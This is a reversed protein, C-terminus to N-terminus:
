ENEIILPGQMKGKSDSSIKETALTDKSNMNANIPDEEASCKVCYVRGQKEKMLPCGCVSCHDALLTEGKLLGAGILDSYRNMDTNREISRATDQPMSRPAEPAPLNTSRAMAPRTLASADTPHYNPMTPPPVVTSAAPASKVVDMEQDQSQFDRRCSVCITETKLPNQMLPVNCSDCSANLMTWGALLLDSLQSM